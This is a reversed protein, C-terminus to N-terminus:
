RHRLHTTVGQERLNVSIEALENGSRIVGRTKNNRLINYASRPITLVVVDEL